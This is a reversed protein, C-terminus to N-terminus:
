LHHNQTASSAQSSMGSVQRDQRISQYVDSGRSHRQAVQHDPITRQTSLLFRPSGIKLSLPSNRFTRHTAQHSGSSIAKACLQKGTQCLRSTDPFRKCIHVKGLLTSAVSAIVFVLQYDISVNFEPPATAYTTTPRPNTTQYNHDIAINTM